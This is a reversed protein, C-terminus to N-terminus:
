LFAAAELKADKKGMARLSIVMVALVLLAIAIYLMSGGESLQYFLTSVVWALATLYGALLSGYFTGAERFAAGLAAVCPFYILIFLLYAYAAAPTFAERLRIFIAVDAEVSQAVEETDSSIMSVGLPDTASGFIGLLNEALVIFAEGIAPLLEFGEEQGEAEGTLYLSNLTGVVAEKAFIGTFLGVTAPWNDETIGIPRFVPTIGKGIAALVSDEGGDNGFSGDIGWSGLLTLICVVIVIVKGARFMFLKLRDYSYRLTKGVRPRNYRPLEMVFPSFSGKFITSKLLLGTLIALIIGAMYISFVVLGSRAPFFAAAFLAYVPLRAGCSMFPTMFIALFRDRKNELTRTAMIAPVTCGFGVLMPVFAKGPLGVMRMFRDMVFAARAMYGSDELIGLMLFMFFIIPIFTAITQIGGGIGGALFTILWQPSGVSELLFGFGDVFFAGFIIDFFDIFAGGVTMTVFFVLYMVSFFIPVGWFRHMLIRDLDFGKRRTDDKALIAETVKAISRYRAEALIIDLDDGLLESLEQKKRKLSELDNGARELMALIVPDDELVGALLSRKGVKGMPGPGDMDLSVSDMFREIEEPYDISFSGTSTGPTRLLPLLAEECSSIGETSNASIAVVPVGLTREVVKPDIVYGEEKAIDMKNLIVVVPINMELLQLSLYLNRELNSADVINLILDCEGQALYRRAVVEDESDPSLSYIGPLDIVSGKIGGIDFHGEKKEVTVGPWNGVRQDSGTLGNFLTTKGCNPNGALALTPRRDM